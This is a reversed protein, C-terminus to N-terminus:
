TGAAPEVAWVGQGAPVAELVVPVLAQVAHTGPLYEKPAAEVHMDALAPLIPARTM